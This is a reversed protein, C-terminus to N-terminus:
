LHQTFSVYNIVLLGNIYLIYKLFICVLWCHCEKIGTSMCRRRQCPVPHCTSGTKLVPGVCGVLDLGPRRGM